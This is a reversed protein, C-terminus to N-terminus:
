IAVVQSRRFQEFWQLSVMIFEIADWIVPTEITDCIVSDVPSRQIGKVFPWYRLYKGM